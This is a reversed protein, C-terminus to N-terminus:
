RFGTVIINNAFHVGAVAFQSNSLIREVYFGLSRRGVFTVVPIHRVMHIFLARSRDAPAINGVTELATELPPAM